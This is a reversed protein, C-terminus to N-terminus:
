VGADGVRKIIYIHLNGAFSIFEHHEQIKYRVGGSDYIEQGNLFKEYTFLKSCEDSYTGDQDFKLEDMGFPLIAGKFQSIPETPPTYIGNNAYGGGTKNIRQLNQMIGNPLRAYPMM